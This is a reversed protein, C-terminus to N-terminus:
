VAVCVLRPTSTGDHAISVHEPDSEPIPDGHAIKSFARQMGEVSTFVAASLSEIYDLAEPPAGHTEAHELADEITAPPQLGRLYEPLDAEPVELQGQEQM